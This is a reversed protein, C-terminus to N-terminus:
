RQILAQEVGVELKIAREFRALDVLMPPDFGRHILEANLEDVRRRELLDALPAAEYDAWSAHEGAACAVAVM